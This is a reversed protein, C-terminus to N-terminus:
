GGWGRARQLREAPQLGTPARSLSLRVIAARSGDLVKPDLILFRAKKGEAECGLPLAGTEGVVM